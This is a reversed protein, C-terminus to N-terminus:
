INERQDKWEGQVRKKRKIYVENFIIVQSLWYVAIYSSHMYLLFYIDMTIIGLTNGYQSFMGLTNEIEYYM